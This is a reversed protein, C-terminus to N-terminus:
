LASMGLATAELEAPWFSAGPVVEASVDTLGEVTAAPAARIVSCASGVMAHPPSASPSLWCCDALVQQLEVSEPPLVALLGAVGACAEVSAGAGICAECAECAEGVDEGICDDRTATVVCTEDAPLASQLAVSLRGGFPPKGARAM